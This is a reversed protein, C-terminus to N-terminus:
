RLTTKSFFIVNGTFININAWGMGELIKAVTTDLNLARTAAEYGSMNIQIIQKSHSALTSPM